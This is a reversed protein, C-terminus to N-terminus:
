EVCDYQRLTTMIRLRTERNRDEPGSFIFRDSALTAALEVATLGAWNKRNLSTRVCPDAGLDLLKNVFWEQNSIVGSHIPSLGLFKYEYNIDLQRSVYGELLSGAIHYNVKSSESATKSVINGMELFLLKDDSDPSGLDKCCIVYAALLRRPVLPPLTDGHIAHAALFNPELRYLMQYVLFAYLGLSAILLLSFCYRILSRGM